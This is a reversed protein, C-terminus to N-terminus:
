RNLLEELSEAVHKDTRICDYEPLFLSYVGTKKDKTLANCEIGMIQGIMSTWYDLQKQTDVGEGYGREWEKFGGGVNVTLKGCSTKCTVGGLCKAFKRTPDGYYWSVIELEVDIVEKEKVQNPSTHDKWKGDFNKRVTGEGGRAVVKKYFAIAEDETEAIIYDVAKFTLNDAEECSDLVDQWRDEYPTDSYGAWFESLMLTDWVRYVPYLTKTWQVDSNVLGNGEERTLIEGDRLVRIEGDWASNFPLDVGIDVNPLELGERTYFTQTGDHEVLLHAFLGDEKEQAICPHNIKHLHKASSCRMYPMHFISGNIVKNFSKKSCGCRLDAICIRRVVEYTEEDASAFNFLTKKEKANAGVKSNMFDLYKFLKTNSFNTPNTFKPFKKVNFSMRSDYAYIAVKMFLEDTMFGKLLVKKDLSGSTNSLAELKEFVSKLSM